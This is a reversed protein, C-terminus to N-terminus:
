AATSATLGQAKHLTTCHALKIPVMFRSYKHQLSTRSAKAVIPVVRPHTDSVSPGDYKDLQVFVIPPELDEQAAQRMTRRPAPVDGLFGFGHVTGLAGNYVGIQTGLNETISVRSGVALHM